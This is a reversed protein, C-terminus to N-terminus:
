GSRNEKKLLLIKSNDINVAGIGVIYYEENQLSCIGAWFPIKSFENKFWKPCEPHGLITILANKTTIPNVKIDVNGYLDRFDTAKFSQIENM